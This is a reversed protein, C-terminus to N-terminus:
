LPLPPRTRPRTGPEASFSSGSVPTKNVASSGPRSGDFQGRYVCTLDQDFLYFDPTCAAQYLKAVNQSQDYLYPFPYEKDKARQAMMEPGNKPHSAIDNTSIAIM